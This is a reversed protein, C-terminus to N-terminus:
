PAPECFLVGDDSLGYLERGAIMPQAIWGKRSSLLAANSPDFVNMGSHAVAYLRGSEKDARLEPTGKLTRRAIERGGGLIVLDSNFASSSNWASPQAQFDTGLVVAIRSGVVAASMVTKSPFSWKNCVTATKLDIAYLSNSPVIVMSRFHLLERTCAGDVRQRWIKEGTDPSYCVVVGQNNALIVRDKMVLATSNVQNNDGRSSLRRWLKRGTNADLCYFYGHRDGIFVRGARVSPSGYIWEGQGSIPSFEWRLRVTDPDLAYLTRSSKAYLTRDHLLVSESGLSDLHYLWLLDGTKRKVACVAGPAFISAFVVEGVVLPNPRTTRSPLVAHRIDPLKTEWRVSLRNPEKHAIM